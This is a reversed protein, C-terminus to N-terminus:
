EIVRTSNNFVRYAKSNSAYGVLMGEYVRSEFKGLHKRKKFIFCKCGFVQFYSINPKRGILVEYPTKMLLRHLYVRNSAHCATNIAEVWFRQSVGYDDLMARALTILTKNEVVGNQQPTYTSSFEHKMGEGDCYEEVRTNRFESGNDSRIKVLSSGFENQARTAFTKFIDFTKGKDELFFTWSYHSYDDVIVLCYLNGGLSKYTTPGFLDMHILDLPRTTSVYAKMLHHSAVQKGAQCASCLKDKEFTVDKVGLIMGKKFAKKLQRM